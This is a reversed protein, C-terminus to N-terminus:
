CGFYVLCILTCKHGFLETNYDFLYPGYQVTRAILVHMYMYPSHVQRPLLEVIKGGKETPTKEEGRPALEKRM